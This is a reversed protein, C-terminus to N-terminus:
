DYKQMKDELGYEDMLQRQYETDQTSRFLDETRGDQLLRRNLENMLDNMLRSGERKADEELERLATCMDIGEKTRYNEKHLELKINGGYCSLVRFADEQLHRFAENEEVYRILDEKNGQRKLFGFVERLDTQFIDVSKLKHIDLLNVRFDNSFIAMRKLELPLERMKTMNRLRISGRWPKEGLYIGITIVPMLRDSGAFGSLYEESPLDQKNRHHKVTEKYQRDYEVSEYNMYKVPLALHPSEEPELGFLYKKGQYDWIKVMDRIFEQYSEKKQDTRWLKSDLTILAEPQVLQKGQFIVGNIFDAFRENKSIYDNWIINKKGM